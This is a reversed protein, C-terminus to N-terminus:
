PFQLIRSKGNACGQQFVFFLADVDHEAAAQQEVRRLGGLERRFRHNAVSSVMQGPDAFLLIGVERFQRRVEATFQEGLEGEGGVAQGILFTLRLIEGLHLLEQRM